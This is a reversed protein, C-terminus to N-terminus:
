ERGRGCLWVLVAITELTGSTGTRVNHTTIQSDKNRRLLDQCKLASVQSLMM